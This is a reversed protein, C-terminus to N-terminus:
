TPIDVTVEAPEALEALEPRRAALAERDVAAELLQVIDVVAMTEENGTTKAADTYMTMDKPCAVVFTDVGVTVAERIRNESPREALNSDDMWIRGGGAGCCFTNDRNRPMETITCGLADLLRRPADTVRNYRALYCPDHYTVTRGLPKVPITGDAVLAVLLETYHRVPKDLGFDPYENRLTNLSHPDTTVIEDFTAKEFAAMNQEVLMEYLGEEGVRRVDNGSNREDEYLIGFDVGAESLITAFTRSLGAVREDFAAFDGVFWLYRVPEKRADKVKVDLGKTWRARQRASKGFSNGQTAFNQLTDQLTAEMHGEDVLARRMQVITSVHEIGVPCAEVCAMCTTCAWLTKEKIVDGALRTDGNGSLPGTPTPRDEWDLVAHLGSQKDVWQRLDLVLDRPSLPGGAVQAPCAVHCRGCKTCADLDVLEKWTFDGVVRYGVHDADAAPKPLHRASAPDHVALNAADVVIHMAKSIPIYAVFVLALIAHSWWTALRLHEANAAGLGLGSMTKALGWGVPSWTEFSPFHTAVIRFGEELFGTVLVVMLFWAFLADGKKLAARSYGEEPQEARTYDLQPPHAARRGILYALGAIAGLGMVDLVVSYGLYFPGHFFHIEHGVVKDAIPALIDTDFTLICTGIFLTIFGWFVLFHAIGAKRDRRAVTSNAAIKALSEQLPRSRALQRGAAVLEPKRARTREWMERWRGIARGRRYKQIRKWAYAAFALTAAAALVYFAVKAAGHVHSFVARTQEVALAPAGRM